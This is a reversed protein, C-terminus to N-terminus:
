IWMNVGRDVSVRPLVYLHKDIGDLLQMLYLCEQITAALAIYEAECTSLAVTPQKKTKWSVLTGDKTLSLCYGTTSRRDNVDGAWNADSYAQIGLNGDCKRYCLKKDSTGRLYRLVHKVTGFHQETPKTFYQSLKSVVFSLDPRTCVTLYILCGVAERYRSVDSMLASDDTYNLKHECPTSRPKCDQMNFRELIKEVYKAQSMTVCDDSQNFDIGLFNRLKGLDKMKFRATLMYKTVKMANEDSAAIILDDVWIVIIEHKQQRTYVCHDAQNQLFKNQTVYEHLLKNWNRGSQKLGYLSRELKCVLKRDMHSKVEYGEPQEM